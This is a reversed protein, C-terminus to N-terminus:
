VRGEKVRNGLSAQGAFLADRTTLPTLQQRVLQVFYQRPWEYINKQRWPQTELYIHTLRKMTMLLKASATILNFLMHFYNM